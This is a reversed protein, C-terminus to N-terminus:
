TARQFRPTSGIAAASAIMRPMKAAMAPGSHNSRSLLPNVDGASLSLTTPSTVSIMM